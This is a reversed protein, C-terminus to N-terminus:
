EFACLRPRSQRPLIPKAESSGTYSGTHSQADHSPLTRSLAPFLLFLSCFLFYQWLDLRAFRTTLKETVHLIVLPIELTVPYVDQDVTMIAASENGM